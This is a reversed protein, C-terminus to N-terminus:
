LDAVNVPQGNNAVSIYAAELLEVVKAGVAGPSGNVGRGLVVDVLNESTAFRPYGDAGAQDWHQERGDHHRVVLTGNSQDLRLFGRECYVGTELHGGGETGINGTSGFTGVAVQGNAPAFQASIADVVDVKVDWNGMFASVRAAQLGTIFFLTGASHTVQLHGQGGGSVHPDSYNRGPGTVPYNFVTRYAEDNGRYFQITMSVFLSSTYQIAGLSGEGLIDRARKTLDTYHWPYGIILERGKSQALDVLEHAERAHLVMPKELLVHLGADLCAKTAAYHTAHTTSVIAGDLKEAALLEGLDAYAKPGSFAAKAKDLSPQYPDCFAVLEAHPNDLLAPIHTYTSWWGTGIVAIRAKDATM